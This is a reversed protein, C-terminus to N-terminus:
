TSIVNIASGESIMVRKVGKDDVYAIIYMAPHKRSSRHTHYLEDMYFTISHRVHDQITAYFSAFADPDNNRLEITKLIYNLADRHVRSKQLM